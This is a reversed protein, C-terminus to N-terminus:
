IKELKLQEESGKLGDVRDKIKKRNDIKLKIM